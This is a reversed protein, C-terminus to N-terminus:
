SLTVIDNRGLETENHSLAAEARKKWPDHEAEFQKSMDISGIVIRYGDYHTLRPEPVVELEVMYTSGGREQEPHHLLVNATPVLVLRNPKLTRLQPYEQFIKAWIDRAQEILLSQGFEDLFQIGAVPVPPKGNPEAITEIPNM